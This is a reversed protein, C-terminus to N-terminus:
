HKIYLGPAFNPQFTRHGFVDRYADVVTRFLNDDWEHRGTQARLNHFSIQDWGKDRLHRQIIEKAEAM